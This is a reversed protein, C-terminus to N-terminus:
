RLVFNVEIQTAVEVPQSSVVTPRYVWQSVAELAARALLPHGEIVKLQQITGDRAIIASLKVAGSLRMPRALPPYVPDVRRLLMAAQVGSSVRIPVAPKEIVPEPEPPPPAISLGTPLSGAIGVLTDPFLIAGSDAMPASSYRPLEAVEVTPAVDRPARLIDARFLRYAPETQTDEVPQRVPEPLPPPTPQPPVFPIALMELELAPLAQTFVLPVLLLVGCVSMQAMLSVLIARQKQKGKPSTLLTQELMTGSYVGRKSSPEAAHRPALQFERCSLIKGWM